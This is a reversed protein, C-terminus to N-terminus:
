IFSGPHLSKHSLEKGRIGALGHTNKGISYWRREDSLFV